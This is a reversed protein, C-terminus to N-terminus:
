DKWGARKKAKPTVWETEAKWFEGPPVRAREPYRKGGTELSMVKGSEDKDLKRNIRVGVREAATAEVAEAAAGVAETAGHKETGKETPFETKGGSVDVPQTEKVGDDSEDDSELDVEIVKLPRNSTNACQWEPWVPALTARTA